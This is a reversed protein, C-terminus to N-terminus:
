KIGSFVEPDLGKGFQRLGNMAQKMTIPIFECDTTLMYRVEGADMKPADPIYISRFNPQSKDTIFAICYANDEKLLIPEWFGQDKFDNEDIFKYKMMQFSPFHYFLTTEFTNSWQKLFGNVILYGSFFSVLAILFCSVFVVAAPGLLSTLNFM